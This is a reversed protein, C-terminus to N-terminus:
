SSRCPAWSITCNWSLCPLSRSAMSEKLSQSTLCVFLLVTCAFSANSHCVSKIAIYLGQVTKTERQLFIFVLRFKHIVNDEHEVELHVELFLSPQQALSLKHHPFPASGPFSDSMHEEKFIQYEETFWPTVWLFLYHSFLINFTILIIIILRVGKLMEESYTITWLDKYLLHQQIIASCYSALAESNNM